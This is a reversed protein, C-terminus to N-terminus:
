LKVRGATEAGSLAIGAGIASGGDDAGRTTVRGWDVTVGGAAEVTGPGAASAEEGVVVGAESRFAEGSCLFAVDRVPFFFFVRFFFFFFPVELQCM